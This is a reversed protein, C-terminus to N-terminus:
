RKRLKWVQESPFKRAWEATTYHCPGSLQAPAQLEQYTLVEFGVDQFLRFWESIPLNFEIGGPDIEVERWDVSHLDFYSRHLRSNTLDGNPPTCLISLPTNGLM